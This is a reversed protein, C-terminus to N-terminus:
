KSQEQPDESDQQMWIFNKHLASPFPLRNDQVFVLILMKGKLVTIANFLQTAITGLTVTDLTLSESLFTSQLM